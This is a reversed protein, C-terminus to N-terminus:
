SALMVPVLITVSPTPVHPTPVVFIGRQVNTSMWVIIQRVPTDLKVVVHLHGSRISVIKLKDFALIQRTLVNMLILVDELRHHIVTVLIAPVHTHDQSTIAPQQMPDVRHELQVNMSIQASSRLHVVKIDRKAVV